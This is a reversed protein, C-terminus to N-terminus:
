SALFRSRIINQTSTLQNLPEKKPAEKKNGQQHPVGEAVFSEVFFYGFFKPNRKKYQPSTEVNTKNM